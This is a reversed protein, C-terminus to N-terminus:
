GQDSGFLRGQQRAMKAANFRRLANEAGKRWTGGLSREPAHDLYRIMMGVLAALEEASSRYNDDESMRERLM